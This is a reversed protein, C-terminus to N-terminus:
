VDQATAAPARIRLSHPVTSEAVRLLWEDVRMLARVALPEYDPGESKCGGIDLDTLPNGTDTGGTCAALALAAAAVLASAALVRVGRSSVLGQEVM